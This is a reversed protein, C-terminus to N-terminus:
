QRGEQALRRLGDDVENTLMINHTTVRELKQVLDSLRDLLTKATTYSMNIKLFPQGDLLLLANMDSNSLGLVFGNFYASQIVVSQDSQTTIQVSPSPSRRDESM